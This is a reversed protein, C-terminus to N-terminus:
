YFMWTDVLGFFKNIQENVPIMFTIAFPLIAVIMKSLAQITSSVFKYHNLKRAESCKFILKNIQPILITKLLKEM